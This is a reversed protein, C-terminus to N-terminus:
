YIHVRRAEPRVDCWFFDWPDFSEGRDNPWAREEGFQSYM